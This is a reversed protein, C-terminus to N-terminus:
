PNEQLTLALDILSAPLESLRELEVGLELDGAFIKIHDACFLEQKRLQILVNCKEGLAIPLAHRDEFAGFPCRKVFNRM